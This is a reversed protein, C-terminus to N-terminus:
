VKYDKFVTGKSADGKWCDKIWVRKGSKLNRWHGRCQHRRPSAHTGSQSDKRPIAPEIKVTHWDYLPVKGKAIKRRNTFTNKVTPVYAIQGPQLDQLWGGIVAILSRVEDSDISHGDIHHLKLGEDSRTYIFGPHKQYGTDNMSWGTCVVTDGKQKLLLLWKADEQRGCVACDDYPLPNDSVESMDVSRTSSLTGVDFWHMQISVDPALAVMERILPTM